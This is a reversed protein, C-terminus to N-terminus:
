VEISNTSVRTCRHTFRVVVFWALVLVAGAAVCGLFIPAIPITVSHSGLRVRTSHHQRDGPQRVQSAAWPIGRGASDTWYSRGEIVLRHSVWGVSCIQSVSVVAAQHGTLPTSPSPSASSAVNSQAVCISEPLLAVTILLCLCGFTHM